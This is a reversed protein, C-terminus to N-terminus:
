LVIVFLTIVSYIFYRLYDLMKYAFVKAKLM